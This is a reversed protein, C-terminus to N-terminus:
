RRATALSVLGDAIEEAADPKAVARMAAAMATLRGADELLEEVLRPAGRLKRRPSSSRAAPTLSGARM